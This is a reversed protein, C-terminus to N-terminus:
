AKPEVDPKLSISERLLKSRQVFRERETEAVIDPIALALDTFKSAILTIRGFDQEAATCIRRIFENSSNKAAPEAVVHNNDDIKSLSPSCLYLRLSMNTELASIIPQSIHSDNFGFGSVILATDPESLATQFASMMDLYPVEFSEQYKSNRPYILVPEGDGKSRIVGDATRRWDISGHMKYLHFVGDIYEPAEKGPERRV